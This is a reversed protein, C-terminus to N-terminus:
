PMANMTMSVERSCLASRMAISLDNLARGCCKLGLEWGMAGLLAASASTSARTCLMPSSPQPVAMPMPMKWTSEMTGPVEREPEVMMPPRSSPQERVTAASNM